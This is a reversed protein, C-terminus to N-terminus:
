EQAPLLYQKLVFDALEKIYPGSFDFKIGATKYIESISKTHGLKLANEYANLAQEPNTKYNRWLAIAGLQAMGYEIYYFPNEFLHLQGQWMRELNKENGSWDIIKSGFKEIIKRWQITREVISHKPNEYVWHQFKDIAAIWPLIKLIKELQERKARKLKEADNFFVDWHEMSILEMSMSALEAVESPANKFDTIELDRCLFSHIAHGGEHVMTVLDRLSGVSNMFIFPVGIENLPYNYGGPAKGKRSALDIHGMTKMTELCEGFFPRIAYFCEISKDILETANTFPKLPDQGSINVETDWPQLKDLKLTKKREKDFTEIIPVIEAAISDHFNYCDQVTYDFRNMAVFMYDRFNKFDANKAINDRLFILQNYLRDLKEQDQTKRHQMKSYVEERRNRNQEKLYNAAEQMTIEKGGIEITMAAICEAYKQVEIGLETFLPINEKRFIELEQKVERLYIAYKKDLFKVFPSLTLKENLKNHCPSIHPEIESVFFNYSKKYEENTTDCSMKIYRWAFNEQYVAELESRDLLWIKLDELSKIERQQLNKFYPEISQWSNIEFIDPLFIRSKKLPIAINNIEM